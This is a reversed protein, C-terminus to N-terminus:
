VIDKNRLENFIKDRHTLQSTIITTRYFKVGTTERNLVEPCSAHDNAAIAVYIEVGNWRGGSMM